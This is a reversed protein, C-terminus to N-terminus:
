KADYLLPTTSNPGLAWNIAVCSLEVAVTTLGGGVLRRNQVDHDLELLKHTM